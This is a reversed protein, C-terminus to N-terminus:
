WPLRSFLAIFRENRELGFPNTPLTLLISVSDQEEASGAWSQEDRQENKRKNSSTLEIKRILENATMAVSSGTRATLSSLAMVGALSSMTEAAM